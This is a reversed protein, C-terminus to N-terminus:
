LSFRGLYISDSIQKRDLAAVCVYVELAKGAIREDLQHLCKGAARSLGGIFGDSIQLEPCYIALIPQDDYSAGFSVDLKWSLELEGSELYQLEPETLGPLSGSSLQLKAYDISLEPWTGSFVTKYNAKLGAAIETKGEAELCFGVKLFPHFPILWNNIFKFKEENNM